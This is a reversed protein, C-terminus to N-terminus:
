KRKRPKPKVTLQEMSNEHQVCDDKDITYEQEVRRLAMRLEDFSQISDFLYGTIKKLSTSHLMSDKESSEIEKTQLVRCM